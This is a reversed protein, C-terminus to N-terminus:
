FALRSDNSRLRNSDEELYGVHYQRLREEVDKLTEIVTAPLEDGYDKKYEKLLIELRATGKRSYSKCKYESYDLALNTLLAQYCRYFAYAVCGGAVIAGGALLGTALYKVTDVIGHSVLHTYIGEIVNDEFLLLTVGEKFLKSDSLGYVMIVTPIITTLASLTASIQDIKGGSEQWASSKCITSVIESEVEKIRKIEGQISRELEAKEARKSLNSPKQPLINQTEKKFPSWFFSQISSLLGYSPCPKESEQRSLGLARNEDTKM